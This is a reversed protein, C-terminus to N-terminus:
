YNLSHILVTNGCHPSYMIIGNNPIPGLSADNNLAGHKSSCCHVTLGELLHILSIITDFDFFYENVRPIFIFRDHGTKIIETPFPILQFSNISIPPTYYQYDDKPDLIFLKKTGPYVYM